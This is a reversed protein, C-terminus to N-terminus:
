SFAPLKKKVLVTKIHCFTDFLYMQDDYQIILFSYLVIYLLTYLVTCIVFSNMNKTKINVTCIKLWHPIKEFSRHYIM